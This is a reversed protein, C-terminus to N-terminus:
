IPIIPSSPTLTLPAKCRRGLGPCNGFEGCGGQSLQGASQTGPLARTPPRFPGDNMGPKRSAAFQGPQMYVAPMGLSVPQFRRVSRLPKLLRQCVSHVRCLEANLLSSSAEVHKLFRCHFRPKFAFAKCIHSCALLQPSCNCRQLDSIQTDSQQSTDSVLTSHSDSKCLCLCTAAAFSPVKTDPRRADASAPPLPGPQCAPRSEANSGTAGAADGPLLGDGM